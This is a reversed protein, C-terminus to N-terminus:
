VRGKRRANEYGQPSLQQNRSHSEKNQSRENGRSTRADARSRLLGREQPCLLLVAGQSTSSSEAAQSAMLLAPSVANASQTLDSVEMAGDAATAAAARILAM